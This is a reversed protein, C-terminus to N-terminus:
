PKAAAKVRSRLRSNLEDDTLPADVGNAPIEAHAIWLAANLVLKRVEPNAWNAHYHGGTYGFGRNAGPNDVTWMLVESRGKNAIIHDYPGSGSYRNSRTEDSPTGQLIATIGQMETRFRINFYWEDKTAFRQVGKTLPVDALVAQDLMWIPNASFKAEYYGGTMALFEASGKGMPVENAYHCFGIGVGKKALATLTQLHDGQIAPNGAGGDAYLVVADANAFATPDAPWGLYYDAAIVGPTKDLAHRFASIGAEFEHEGLPHSNKGALLVIKKRNGALPLRKLKIDKFAVPKGAAPLTLTLRGQLHRGTDTAPADPSLALSGNIWTSIEGGHATIRYEAWEAGADTANGLDIRAGTVVRPASESGRIGIAAKAGALRVQAVLEFDDLEGARWVCTSGTAAGPPPTGVLIGDHVTWGADADWGTLDKGNFISVFGDGEAASGALSVTLLLSFRLLNM